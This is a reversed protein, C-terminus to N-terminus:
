PPPPPPPPIGKSTPQEIPTATDDGRVPAAAKSFKGLHTRVRVMQRGRKAMVVAEGAGLSSVEAALDEPSDVFSDGIAVLTDNPQLDIDASEVSVVTLGDLVIGGLRLTGQKKEKVEEAKEKVAKRPM